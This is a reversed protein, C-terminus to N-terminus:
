GIEFQLRYESGDYAVFLGPTQRITRLASSVRRRFISKTGAGHYYVSNTIDVLTHSGGGSLFQFINFLKTFPRFPNDTIDIISMDKREELWVQALSTYDNHGITHNNQKAKELVAELRQIGIESLFTHVIETKVRIAVQAVFRQLEEESQLNILM